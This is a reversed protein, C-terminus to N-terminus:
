AANGKNRIAEILGTVPQLRADLEALLAEQLEQGFAALWGGPQMWLAPSDAPGADALAQRHATLLQAFRKELLLPVTAFSKREQDGLIQDLAADLNALQQLPPSHISLAQRARARLRDIASEMERQHALYFRHFPTYDIAIEHPASPAPEPFKIRARGCGPSCDEMILKVLDARAEAFETEISASAGTQRGATGTTNTELVAFLTIADTVDVWQSLREAVDQRSEVADAVGMGDLIRILRSRNFNTRSTAQIM